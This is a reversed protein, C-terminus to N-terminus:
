SERSTDTTLASVFGNRLDDTRAEPSRQEPPGFGGGGASEVLFVDGPLVPVDIEKTKLFRETGKSLLRYRHPLGDCGGLMGYSPHRVGEGATNAVAPEATEMVLRLVSGAGGRFEGDGFSDPRFEHQEFFLPFRTEAVEISGFKSSGMAQGEGATEWGDGIPSAGAGPRAHFLHWIFQRDTRPDVGKIAIRFRKGWGAIVRDPCAQSMAKIVSEAIEQACHNTALTVPAPAKAWVVTGEKAIVEVARFTGSNKPTRPDVLFTLAMYVASMMNPYSSNVFGTVQPHSDTLDVTLSDGAVTVTARVHIDEAGHGDDDLVSEGTYTGDLWTAICARTEHEASDLITEISERVVDAGYEDLLALVRREGIHASGVMARLDGLFEDQHRVNTAIMTIVDDRIEGADHLKLPTIRIGEQWIETAAPNYAGHTSGGIDSQHARNIAWFLLTGGHFIPVFATLDPLHNGGHYPDNLLFVDGPRIRDGFQDIVARVAWPLSGVHIPVHEAQAILRADRDLIATSFDRSSNLIQSYATRLMAEGMEEVIAEFRHTVVSVTVPDVM